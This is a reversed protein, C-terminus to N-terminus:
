CIGLDDWIWNNLGRYLLMTTTVLAALWSFGLYLLGGAQM